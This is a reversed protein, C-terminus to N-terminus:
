KIFELGGTESVSLCGTSSEEDERERREGDVAQAKMSCAAVRQTINLAPYAQLLCSYVTNFPQIAAGAGARRM